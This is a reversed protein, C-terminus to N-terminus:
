ARRRWEGLPVVIFRRQAEDYRILAVESREPLPDSTEVIAYVTHISGHSDRVAVRGYTASVTASVVTGVRGVLQALSVATSSRPAIQAFLNSLARTLPLALVFSGVLVLPFGWAPYSGGFSLMSNVLLGVAGFSGLLGILVLMLPVKGIGLAGLLGGGGGAHLDHEADADVDVDVDADADVDTDIDVDADVDADIDADADVDADHDGFGSVIQVLALVLSCGLAVLFPINQGSLLYTFANM